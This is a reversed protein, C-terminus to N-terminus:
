GRVYAHEDYSSRCWNTCVSVRKNPLPRENSCDDGYTADLAPLCTCGQLLLTLLHLYYHYLLM